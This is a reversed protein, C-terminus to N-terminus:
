PRSRPVARLSSRSSLGCCMVRVRVSANLVGAPDAFCVVRRGTKGDPLGCSWRARVRVGPWLHLACVRVCGCVCVCVCVRILCVEEGELSISSVASGGRAMPIGESPVRLLFIYAVLLLMAAHKEGIKACCALVQVRFWRRVRVCFWGRRVKVLLERLVFLRARPVFRRRKDIAVKARKVAECILGGLGSRFCRVCGGVEGHTADTSCRVLLCGTRVYGLYNGFTRSCRFTNSWAVIGDVSPPFVSGVIGLAGRAFSIWCRIGCATQVCAVICCLCLCAFPVCRASRVPARGWLRM